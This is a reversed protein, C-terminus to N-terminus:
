PFPIQHNEKKRFYLDERYFNDLCMAQFSQRDNENLEYIDLNVLKDVHQLNEHLLIFKRFFKRRCGPTYESKARATIAVRGLSETRSDVSLWVVPPVKLEGSFLLLRFGNTYFLGSRAYNYHYM